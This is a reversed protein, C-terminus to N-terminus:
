LRRIMEKKDLVIYWMGIFKGERMVPSTYLLQQNDLKQVNDGIPINQAVNYTYANWIERAKAPLNPEPRCVFRYEVIVENELAGKIRISDCAGSPPIILLPQLRAVANLGEEAAMSIVQADTVRKLKRGRMEKALATRDTRDEQPTSCAATLFVSLLGIFLPMEFFRRPM